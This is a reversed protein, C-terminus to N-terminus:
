AFEGLFLISNLMLTNVVSLAAKENLEFGFWRSIHVDKRLEHNAMFSILGVSIVSFVTM